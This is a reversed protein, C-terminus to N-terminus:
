EVRVVTLRLASGQCIGYDRLTRADELPTTEFILRQQECPIGCQELQEQIESHTGATVYLPPKSSGLVLVKVQNRRLAFARRQVVGRWIRQTDTIAKRYSLAVRRGVFGRWM